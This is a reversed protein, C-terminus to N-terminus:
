TTILKCLFTETTEVLLPGWFLCQCVLKLMPVRLLPGGTEKETQSCSRSYYIGSEGEEVPKRRDSNM